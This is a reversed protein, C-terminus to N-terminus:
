WYFLFAQFSSFCRFFFLWINVTIWSMKGQKSSKKCRSDIYLASRHVPLKDLTHKQRMAPHSQIWILIVKLLIFHNTFVVSLLFPPLFFYLMSTIFRTLMECVDHQDSTRWNTESDWHTNSPFIGWLMVNGGCAQQTTAESCVPVVSKNSTMPKFSVREKHQKEKLSVIMLKVDVFEHLKCTTYCTYARICM